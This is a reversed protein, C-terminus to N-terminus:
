AHVAVNDGKKWYYLFVVLFLLSTTALLITNNLLPNIKGETIMLLGGGSKGNLGYLLGYSVNLGFHIGTDAWVSGSQYFSYTLSCGLILSFVFNLFTVDGNWFDDLAYLTISIIAIFFPPLKGALSHIVFGRTILDNIISGLFFGVIMQVLMWWANFGTQVGRIEFKGLQWYTVYMLSWCGFGILFSVAFHKKWHNSRLLGIGELGPLGNLKGIYSAFPFFLLIGFLQIFTNTVFHTVGNFYISLALFSGIGIIAKKM